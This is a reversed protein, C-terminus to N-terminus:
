NTIITITNRPEGLMKIILKNVVCRLTIIRCIVDYKVWIQGLLINFIEIDQDDLYLNLM